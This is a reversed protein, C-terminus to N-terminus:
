FMYVVGGVGINNGTQGSAIGVQFLGFRKRKFVAEADDANVVKFVQLLNEAAAAAIGKGLHYTHAQQFCVIFIRNVAARFILKDYDEFIFIFFSPKSRSSFIRRAM